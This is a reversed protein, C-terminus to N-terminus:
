VANPPNDDNAMTLTIATKKQDLMCANTKFCFRIETESSMNVLSGSIISSSLDLKM